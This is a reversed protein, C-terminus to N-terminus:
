GHRVARHDSAVSNTKQVFGAGGPDIDISMLASSM